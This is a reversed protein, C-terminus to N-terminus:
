VARKIDVVAPVEISRRTGQTVVFKHYMSVASQKVGTTETYGYM